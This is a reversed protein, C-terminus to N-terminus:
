ESVHAACNDLKFVPVVDLDRTDYYSCHFRDPVKAPVADLTEYEPGLLVGDPDKAQYVEHVIGESRLFDLAEALKLPSIATGARALRGIDVTHIKPNKAIWDSLFSWVEALDPRQRTLNDYSIRSM